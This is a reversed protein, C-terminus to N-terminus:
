KEEPIQAQLFNILKVAEDISLFKYILSSDGEMVMEFESNNGRPYVTLSGMELETFTKEKSM